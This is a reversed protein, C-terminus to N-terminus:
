AQADLLLGHLPPHDSRFAAQNAAAGRGQAPLAGAPARFVLVAIPSLRRLGIGPLTQKRHEIGCLVAEATRSRDAAEGGVAIAEEVHDAVDPFQGGVLVGVAVGEARQQPRAARHTGGGTGGPPHDFATREQARGVIAPTVPGASAVRM